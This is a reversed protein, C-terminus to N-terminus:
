LFSVEGRSEFASLVFNPLIKLAKKVKHTPNRCVVASVEATCSGTYSTAPRGVGQNLADHLGPECHQSSPSHRASSHGDLAGGLTLTATGELVYYVDDSADHVEANAATTDKEHQVAVRLELGPGGILDEAKNAGQLKKQLETVSQARTVVFPRIPKAPQKQEGQSFVGVAFLFCIGVVGIFRSM